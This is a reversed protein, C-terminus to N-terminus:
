YKIDFVLVVDTIVEQTVEFFVGISRFLICLMFKRFRGGESGGRDNLSDRGVHNHLTVLQQTLM